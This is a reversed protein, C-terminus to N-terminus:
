CAPQSCIGQLPGSDIAAVCFPRQDHPMSPAGTMLPLPLCRAYGLVVAPEEVTNRCMNRRELAVVTLVFRIPLLAQVLIGVLGVPNAVPLERTLLARRQIETLRLWVQPQHPVRVPPGGACRKGGRRWELHKM